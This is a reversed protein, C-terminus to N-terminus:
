IKMIGLNKLFAICKREFAAMDGANELVYDCHERFWQATHQAAIRKRAYDEPIGDRQILRQVRLEEPATVAVTVDCLEGLGSELLAIADIAALRPKEELRRLVERKVAGHTITNLDRLAVKDDFVLRGLAKRDLFGHRVTGSFRNEIARLLDADTSLLDHYIADCDLVLGGMDGILRLLTTKGCGTGGTIGIIM